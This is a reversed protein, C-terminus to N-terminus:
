NIVVKTGKPVNDYIWKADDVSLRVCGHSAKNGLKAAEAVNITKNKDFPVSHFLFDGDFQTWYYAGMQYTKNFFSKGKDNVTFTGVPTDEGDKGTSCIFSEVIKDDSDFITVNQNSLAVRLWLPKKANHLSVRNKQSAQSSPQDHNSAAFKISKQRGDLFDSGVKGFQKSNETTHIPQNAFFSFILCSIAAGVCILVATLIKLKQQRKQRITKVKKYRQMFMVKRFNFMNLKLNLTFWPILAMSEKANVQKDIKKSSIPLLPLLTDLAEMMFDPSFM